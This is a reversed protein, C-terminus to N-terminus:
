WEAQRSMRQAWWYELDLHNAQIYNRERGRHVLSGMHLNSRSHHYTMQEHPVVENNQELSIGPVYAGKSVVVIEPVEVLLQATLLVSTWLISGESMFGM